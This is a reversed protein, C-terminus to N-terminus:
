LLRLLRRLVLLLCLLRRLTLGAPLLLGGEGSVGAAGGRPGAALDGSAGDGPRDARRHAAHRDIMDAAGDLVHDLALVPRAARRLGLLARGLLTSLPRAPGPQGRTGPSNPM